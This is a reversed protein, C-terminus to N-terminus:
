FIIFAIKRIGFTVDVINFSGSLFEKMADMDNYYILRYLEVCDIDEARQVTTLTEEYFDGDMM